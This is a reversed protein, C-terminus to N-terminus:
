LDTLEDIALGFGICGCSLFELDYGEMPASAATPSLGIPWSILYTHIFNFYKVLQFPSM